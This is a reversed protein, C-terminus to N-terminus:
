EGGELASTFFEHPYVEVGWYTKTAHHKTLCLSLKLKVKISYTLLNLLSFIRMDVVNRAYINTGKHGVREKRIM